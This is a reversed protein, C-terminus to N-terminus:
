ELVLHIEAHYSWPWANAGPGEAEHDLTLTARDGGHDAFSWERQWANGHISHPHDGFNKDVQYDRGAFHFRGHAIRGSYPILPFCGLRRPTRAALDEPTVPRFMEEDNHRWSVIAGGVEPNVTLRSSGLSLELNQM